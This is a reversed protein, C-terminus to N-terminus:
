AYWAPISGPTASTARVSRKLLPGVLSAAGEEDASWGGDGGVPVAGAVAEGDVACSCFAAPVAPAVGTVPAVCRGGAPARTGPTPMVPAPAGVDAAGEADVEFAVEAGLDSAGDADVGSVEAADVGRAGEADLESADAADVCADAEGAEGLALVCGAGLVDAGVVGRRRLTACRAGAGDTRLPAASGAM